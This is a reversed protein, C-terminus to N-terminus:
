ARGLFSQLIAVACLGALESRLVFPAWMVGMFQAHELLKTEDLCLGGEPGVVVMMPLGQTGHEKLTSSLLKAGKVAGFVGFCPKSADKLMHALSDKFIISPIFVRGSQRCADQAVRILRDAKAVAKNFCFPESRTAQFIIFRDVGFECGRKITESLKSEELAAQVLVIEPHSPQSVNLTGQTFYARRDHKEYTLTGMVERGHGDFVSVIEDPKIRLVSFFRTVVEAPLQHHNNHTFDDIWETPVFSRHM